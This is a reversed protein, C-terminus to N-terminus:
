NSWVFWETFYNSIDNEIKLSSVALFQSIHGLEFTPSSELDSLCRINNNATFINSVETTKGTERRPNRKSIHMQKEWRRGKEIVVNEEAERDRDWVGIIPLGLEFPM